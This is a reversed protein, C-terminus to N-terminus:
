PKLTVRLPATARLLELRLYSTNAGPAMFIRLELLADAVAYRWVPIGDEVAFSELHVFGQGSIAGGAFENASLDTEAGLYKVSLEIKAVLLTREVPPSLSAMLFGHYRRTNAGAVTGCAFGGLGNTM